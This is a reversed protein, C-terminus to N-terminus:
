SPPEAPSPPPPPLSPPSPAIPVKLIQPGAQPLPPDVYRLGVVVLWICGAVSAALIAAALWVIGQRYWADARAAEDARLAPDAPPAM